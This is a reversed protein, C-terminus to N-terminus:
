QATVNPKNNLMNEAQVCMGAVFSNLPSIVLRATKTTAPVYIADGRTYSISIPLRLLCDQEDLLWVDGTQALATAPIKWLNAIVKGDISAKVFSGAYLPQKKDYPKDVAVILARQRTNADVTQAMRAVYGQWSPAQSTATGAETTHLTVAWKAATLTSTSPLQSWQQETLPISVEVQDTSNLTGLVAGARVISGPQVNSAVVVANFPARIRTDKIDQQSQALALKADTVAAKAAKIQPTRFVLPSDPQGSLGSTQWELMAQKRKRQEELLTLEANALAAKRSALVKEYDQKQIELLVQGKKVRQGVALKNSIFAVKGGVESTLALTHRPQVEGFGTVQSAFNDAQIPLVSVKPKGAAPPTPRKEAQKAKVASRTYFVAAALALLALLTIVVVTVRRFRNPQQTVDNNVPQPASNSM